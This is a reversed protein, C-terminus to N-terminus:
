CKEELHRHSIIWIFLDIIIFYKTIIYLYLKTIIYLYVCVCVCVPYNVLQQTVVCVCSKCIYLMHLVICRDKV